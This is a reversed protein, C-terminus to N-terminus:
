FYSSNPLLAPGVRDRAALTVLSEFDKTSLSRVGIGELTLAFVNKEM